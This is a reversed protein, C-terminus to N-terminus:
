LAITRQQQQQYATVIYFTDGKKKKEYIFGRISYKPFRFKSAAAATFTKYASSAISYKLNFLIFM